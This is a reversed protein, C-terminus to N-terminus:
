TPNNVTEFEIPARSTVTISEVPLRMTVPKESPNLPSFTVVNSTKSGAGFM